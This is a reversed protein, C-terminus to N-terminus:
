NCCIHPFPRYHIALQHSEIHNITKFDRTFWSNFKHIHTHTCTYTFLKALPCQVFTCSSLYFIDLAFKQPWTEPFLVLFSAKSQSCCVKKGKLYLASFMFLLILSYINPFVAEIGSEQCRGRGIEGPVLQDLWCYWTWLWNSASNHM